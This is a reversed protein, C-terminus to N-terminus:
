WSDCVKSNCLPVEEVGSIVTTQMLDTYIANAHVGYWQVKCKHLLMEKEVPLSSEDPGPYQGTAAQRSCTLSIEREM